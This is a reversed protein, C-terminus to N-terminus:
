VEALEHVRLLSREALIIGATVVYMTKSSYEVGSLNNGVTM